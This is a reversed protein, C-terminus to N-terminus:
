GALPHAYPDRSLTSMSSPHNVRSAIDGGFTYEIRQFAIAIIRRNLIRGAYLSSHHGECKTAMPWNHSYSRKM